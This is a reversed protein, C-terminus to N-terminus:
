NTQEEKAYHIKTDGLNIDHNIVASGTGVNNVKYHSESRNMNLTIQGLNVEFSATNIIDGTFSINGVDIDATLKNAVVGKFEADGANISTSVTNLTADKISISGVNLSISINEMERPISITFDSIRYGSFFRKKVEQKIKFSKDSEDYAMKYSIFSSSTYNLEIDDRDTSVVKIYDFKGDYHISSIEEVITETKKESNPDQYVEDLIFDDRTAAYICTGAGLITLTFGLFILGKIKM